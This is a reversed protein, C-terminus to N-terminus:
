RFGIHLHNKHGANTFFISDPCNFQWPGGVNTPKLDGTMNCMYEMLQYNPGGLSAGLTIEDNVKWIDVGRGDWHASMRNTGSVCKTHRRVICTGSVTYGQDAFHILLTLIRCDIEVRSNQPAGPATGPCNDPGTRLAGLGNAQDEIDQKFTPNGAADYIRSKYPEETMIRNALTTSDALCEEPAPSGSGPTESAPSENLLFSLGMAGFLFIIVLTVVIACSAIIATITWGIPNTEAAAVTATAGAGTAAAGATGVAASGAGATGAAAGGTGATGAAAGGAGASGAAEAASMGAAGELAAAGESGAGLAEATGPNVLMSQAAEPSISGLTEPSMNAAQAGTVNGAAEPSMNSAAEPSMRSFAEPKMNGIEEPNLKNINEPKLKDIDKNLNHRDYIGKGVNYAEKSARGAKRPIEKAGEGIRKEPSIDEPQLGEPEEPQYDTMKKGQAGRSQEFYVKILHNIRLKSVTLIIM